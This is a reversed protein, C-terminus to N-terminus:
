QSLMEGKYQCFHTKSFKSCLPTANDYNELNTM